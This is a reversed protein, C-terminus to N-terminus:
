NIIVYTKLTGNNKIQTLLKTIKYFYSTNFDIIMEINKNTM